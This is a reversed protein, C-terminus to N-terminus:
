SQSIKHLLMIDELNMWVTALTLSDTRGLAEYQVAHMYMKKIWEAAPPCKHQKWRKAETFLTAIFM